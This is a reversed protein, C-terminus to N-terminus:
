PLPRVVGFIRGTCGRPAGRRAPQRENGTSEASTAEAPRHKGYGLSEKQLLWFRPSGAREGAGGDTRAQRIQSGTPRIPGAPVELGSALYGESRGWSLRELPGPLMPQPESRCCWLGNYDILNRTRCCEAPRGPKWSRRDRGTGGAAVGAMRVSNAHRCAFGRARGCTGAHVQTNPQQVDPAPMRPCNSGREKKSIRRPWSGAIEEPYTESRSAAPASVISTSNAM